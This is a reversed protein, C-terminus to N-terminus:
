ELDILAQDADVLDGVNCLIAQVVGEGGSEVPVEMKMSELVVVVSEYTVNDGVACEIRTVTGSMPSLVQHAM